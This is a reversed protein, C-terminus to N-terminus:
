PYRGPGPPSYKQPAWPLRGCSCRHQPALVHPSSPAVHQSTQCRRVNPRPAKPPGSEESRRVPQPSGGGQRLSLLVVQVTEQLCFRLALMTCHVRGVLALTDVGPLPVSQLRETGEETHADVVFHNYERRVVAGVKDVYLTEFGPVPAPARPAKLLPPHTTPCPLKHTTSRM